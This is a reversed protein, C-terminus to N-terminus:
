DPAPVRRTLVETVNRKGRALRRAHQTEDWSLMVPNRLGWPWDLLPHIYLGPPSGCEIRLLGGRLIWAISKRGLGILGTNSVLLLGSVCKPNAPLSPWAQFRRPMFVVCPKGITKQMLQPMICLALIAGDLVVARLNVDMVRTRLAETAHGCVREWLRQISVCQAFFGRPRAAGITQPPSAVQTATKQEAV